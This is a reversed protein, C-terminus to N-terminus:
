LCEGLDCRNNNNSDTYRRCHGPFSCGRNCRVTCPNVAISQTAPAQTTAALTPQAAAASTSGGTPTAQVSSSVPGTPTSLGQAYAYPSISAADELRLETLSRIAMAAAALTVAGAPVAVRLFERRSMQAQGSPATLTVSSVKSRASSVFIKKATVAIWRWHAMIKVTLLALTGVSSLIHIKLWSDHNELALSFWTSIVLGTFLIIFLGIFLGLDLGFYLRSRSSTKMRLRSFVSIVWEWHILLHYASFFGIFVGLLQHLPLGTLDLFYVLLVAAFLIADIIWRYKPNKIKL